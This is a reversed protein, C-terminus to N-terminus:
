YPLNAHYLCTEWPTVHIPREVEELVVKAAEPDCTFNFEGAVTINGEGTTNGGMVYIQTFHSFFSPDLRVAMALNTLPGLAAMIVEDSNFLCFCANINFSKHRASDDHLVRGTGRAYRDLRCCRLM